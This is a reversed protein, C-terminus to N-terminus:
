NGSLIKNLRPVLESQPNNKELQAKFKEANEKDGKKSYAVALNYLTAEHTPNSQLSTQFEKIARDVDPNQREVFTIGLDTRVNLDEKIELAKQYWSEAKEYNGADFYANGTKVLTQFDNPKIKAAQEYFELAKEFRGIQGYMDGAKMQAEFNEPQSRANELTAAVDPMMSGQTNQLTSHDMGPNITQNQVTLQQSSASRNITNAAFFGIALGIILGGIGFLIQKQM